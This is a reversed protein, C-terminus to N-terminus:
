GILMPIQKEYTDFSIRNEKGAQLVNPLLSKIAQILNNEIGKRGKHKYFDDYTAGMLDLYKKHIESIKLRHDFNSLEIVLDIKVGNILEFDRLNLERDIDMGRNILLQKYKKKDFHWLFILFIAYAIHVADKEPILGEVSLMFTEFAAFCQEQDRLTAGFYESYLSFTKSIDNIYGEKENIVSLPTYIKRREGSPNEFGYRKCLMNSYSKLDPEILGIERDFFRKFYKESKFGAGYVVKISEQLQTIDTAFVFYVDNINFFHKVSEILEIAFNPRCRDLEDLIIFVPLLYEGCTVIDSILDSLANKFDTVDSKRAQSEELSTSMAKSAITGFSKEIQEDIKTEDKEEGAIFSGVPGGLFVTSAGSVITPASKKVVKVATKKFKEFKDKFKTEDEGKLDAMQRLLDGILAILADKSLDNEWCDFRFVQYFKKELDKTLRELFFSKGEGWDATINLVYNTPLGLRSQKEYQASLFKVIAVAQSKRNLCDDHWHDLLEIEERENTKEDKNEVM